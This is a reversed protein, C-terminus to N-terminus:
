DSEVTVSESSIPMRPPDGPNVGPLTSKATFTLTVDTGTALRPNFGVQGEPNGQGTFHGERNPADAQYAYSYTTMGMYGVTEASVSGNFLPDDGVQWSAEATFEILSGSVTDGDDPETQWSYAGLALPQGLAIWVGVAVMPGSRLSRWFRSM